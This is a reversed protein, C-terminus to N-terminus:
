KQVSAWDRSCLRQINGDEDCFTNWAECCTNVIHEYNSFCLNSLKIKRLQQWVQEMPNLEPSYPPLPMLWINKPVILAETTHWSARDMLIIALSDEEVNKSILDLHIQMMGTNTEPLVLACGKDKEPCVAGFIYTSLFQKQRIVRPRTGKAAWVRSLSGQQGIRSEDQWWVEIVTDPHEDQIKKLEDPFLEKFQEVAEESHKPHKSRGSIWVVNLRDLLTYVGSTSYNCDFKESLLKQIDEAIIRGGNKDEHLRDIEDKFNEEEEPPLRPKRGRGEREILGEYDFEVFSRLWSRVTREDALVIKAVECLKKGQQLHHLAQLKIKIKPDREVKFCSLFDYEQIATILQKKAQLM